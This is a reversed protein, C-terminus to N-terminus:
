NPDLLTTLMQKVFHRLKDAPPTGPPWAPPNFARNCHALKVAEVYLNEKDRFHYNVAALNVGVKHCIDRVTAAKFGKEAFVAGAADLLRERTEEAPPSMPRTAGRPCFLRM